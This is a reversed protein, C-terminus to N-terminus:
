GIHTMVIGERCERTRHLSLCLFPIQAPELLVSFVNVDGGSSLSQTLRVSRDSPLHAVWKAGPGVPVQAGCVGPVIGACLGM